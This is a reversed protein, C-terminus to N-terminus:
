ELFKAKLEPTPVMCEEKKGFWRYRNKAVFDYIWDRFGSPLGELLWLSKWLGGFERGIKLVATSKFYYATGPDILLLSTMQGPDLNRDVM